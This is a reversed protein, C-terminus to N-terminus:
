RRRKSAEKMAQEQAEAEVMYFALWDTVEAQTVTRTLQRVTM